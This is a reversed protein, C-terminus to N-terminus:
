AFAATMDQPKPLVSVMPVTRFEHVTAALKVLDFDAYSLGDSGRVYFRKRELDTLSTWSTFETPNGSVEHGQIHLSNEGGNPNSVSVGRPRDFNNMIHAVLQVAKDPDTQKEGYKAYFAARVFWAVATDSSLLGAKSIGSDPQQAEYNGFTASSRDVNTLFTHNNLNTLHWPFQPANTLVGVPNDYVALVGYHFEIM